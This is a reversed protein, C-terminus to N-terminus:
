LVEAAWETIVQAIRESAIGDWREPVTREKPQSQLARDVEVPINDYSTGVLRNTGQTITVPRETNDRVTLCPVGFFTSEEQIGGSDTLVVDAEMQLRMFDLYGLPDLLLFRPNAALRQRLGFEELKKLTRPHVPFVCTLRDTLSELAAMLKRLHAEDDVNSPRHFTMLAYPNTIGLTSRITSAKFHPTFSILSDIMTNGVFHIKTEAVGERVLNDRAEPSTIFLLDAIQDTLLRNIEEPMTRDFSRLGAEVHAVPIHLKVAALACAITSNVDGFVMVLDPRDELLVKEYRELIRSTQVGHSGSGVELSLDPAKMQLEDFFLASMAHDYHQGTHVLMLEFADLAELARYVPNAKIYNPRAGVVIHIRPRRHQNM